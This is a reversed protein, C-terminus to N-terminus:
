HTTGHDIDYVVLGYKQQGSTDFIVKTSIHKSKYSCSMYESCLLLEVLFECRIPKPSDEGSVM